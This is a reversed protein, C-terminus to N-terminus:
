LRTQATRSRVETRATIMTPTGSFHIAELEYSQGVHRAIGPHAFLISQMESPLAVWGIRLKLAEARAGAIGTILVAAVAATSFSPRMRM